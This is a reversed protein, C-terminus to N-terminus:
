ENDDKGGIAWMIVFPLNILALGCEILLFVTNGNVGQWIACVICLVFALLNITYMKNLFIVMREKRYLGTFRDVM